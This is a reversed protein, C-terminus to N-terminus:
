AKVMGLCPKRQAIRMVLLLKRAFRAMAIRFTEAISRQITQAAVLFIVFMLTLEPQLAFVAM